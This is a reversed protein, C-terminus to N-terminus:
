FDKLTWQDHHCVIDFEILNDRFEPNTANRTFRDFAILVYNLVTKDVYMKPVIKINKGILEL